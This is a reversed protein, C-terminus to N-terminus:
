KPFKSFIDKLMREMLSQDAIHSKYDDAQGVWVLEKTKRDYIKVTLGGEKYPQNNTSSENSGLYKKGGSSGTSAFNPSAGSSGGSSKEYKSKTSEESNIARSTKILVLLDPNELSVSYGKETMENELTSVLSGDIANVSEDNFENIDFATNPLYAFTKFDGLDDKTYKKTKINSACGLLFILGLFVAPKLAKKM